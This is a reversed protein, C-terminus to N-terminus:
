LAFAVYVRRACGIIRLVMRMPSTRVEIL